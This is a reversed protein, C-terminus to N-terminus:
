QFYIHARVDAPSWETIPACDSEVHGYNQRLMFRM